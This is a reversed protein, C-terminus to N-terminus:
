GAKKLREQALIRRAERDIIMRRYEEFAIGSVAKSRCYGDAIVAPARALGETELTTLEKRTRGKLYKEVMLSMPDLAHKSSCENTPRSKVSRNSTAAPMRTPAVYGTRIAKVLYGAPNRLSNGRRKRSRSLEELQLEIEEPTHARALEAAVSPTVGQEVMRQIIANVRDDVPNVDRAKQIFVIRWEGRAIKAYRQAAPLTELFGVDELEAIAPQLRRKLQGTDYNRSLGVHECAFEQLEFEWRPKHYFRKDLFRFMRKAAAYELQRFVNLDIAKLYGSKFSRFVVDNWTFSSFAPDPQGANRLKRLRREQDYLTVNDLIHFSEDVWSQQDKDWWARDYYLIVGLWRM